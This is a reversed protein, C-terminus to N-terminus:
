GDDCFLWVRIPYTPASGAGGLRAQAALSPGLDKVFLFNALQPLGEPGWGGAHVMEHSLTAAIYADPSDLNRSSLHPAM